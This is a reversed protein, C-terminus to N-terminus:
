DVENPGEQRGTGGGMIGAKAREQVVWEESAAPEPMM